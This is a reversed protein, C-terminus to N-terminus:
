SGQIGSYAHPCGGCGQQSHEREGRAALAGFLVIGGSRRPRVRRDRRGALASDRRHRLADRHEPDEVLAVADDLVHGQM